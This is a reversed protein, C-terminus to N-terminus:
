LKYLRARYREVDGGLFFLFDTWPLFPFFLFLFLPFFLFVGEGLM